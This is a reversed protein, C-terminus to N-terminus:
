GATPESEGPVLIETKLWKLGVERSADPARARQVKAMVFVAGGFEAEDLIKVRDPLFRFLAYSKLRAAQRRGQPTQSKLWKEFAPFRAGYVKRAVGAQRGVARSGAGFLQVGRGPKEWPQSSDFITMAMSPNASLNRCHQSEPDSLFYVELNASYAFFATNIYARNERAVTAISCLQTRAIIRFLSTRIRRESVPEDSRQVTM